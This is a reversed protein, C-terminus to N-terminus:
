TIKLMIKTVIGNGKLKLKIRYIEAQRHDQVASAKWQKMEAHKQEHACARLNDEAERQRKM